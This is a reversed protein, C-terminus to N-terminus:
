SPPSKAKPSANKAPPPPSKAPSNRTATCGATSCDMAGAGNLAFTIGRDTADKLEDTYQVLTYFMQGVTDATVPTLDMAEGSGSALPGTTVKRPATPTKGSKLQDKLGALDDHINYTELRLVRHPSDKTVLLRGASTDLGLAPVKNVTLPQGSTGSTKPRSAAEPSKLLENLSGTLVDALKAPAITRALTQDVLDSGDDMGVSWESPPAKEGPPVDQRPAPSVQWRMFTKESIRLVDKGSNNGGSTTTGFQSGSSTVTIENQTIGLASADKYHLGLAEELDGVAERFPMLNHQIAQAQDSGSSATTLTLVGAALAATLLGAVGILLAKQRGTPAQLGLIWPRGPPRIAPIPPEGPAAPGRIEHPGAAAPLSTGAAPPTDAPSSPTASQAAAPGRPSPRQEGDAKSDTM